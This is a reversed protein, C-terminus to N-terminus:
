LFSPPSGVMRTSFQETIKPRRALCASSIRRAPLLLASTSLSVPAVMPAKSALKSTYGPSIKTIIPREPLPLDVIKLAM